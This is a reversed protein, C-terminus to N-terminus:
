AARREPEIAAADPQHVIKDEDGETALASRPRQPGITRPPRKRYERMFAVQALKPAIAFLAATLVLLLLPLLLWQQEVFQSFLRASDM